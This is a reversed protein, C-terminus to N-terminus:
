LIRSEMSRSWYAWRVWSIKHVSIASTVAIMFALVSIGTEFSGSSENIRVDDISRVWFTPTGGEGPSKVFVEEGLLPSM